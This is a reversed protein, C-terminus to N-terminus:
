QKKERIAPRSAPQSERQLSRAVRRVSDTSLIQAGRLFLGRYVEDGRRRALSDLHNMTGLIAPIGAAHLKRYVEPEPERTGVFVVLRSAPIGLSLLRRLSVDSGASASIIVGPDRAHVLRAQDHTYTIVVAYGRAKHREVADLVPTYLHPEKVDLTLVCRQRAWELTEGLTPIRCSTVRGSPDRLRLRRLDVLSKSMVPGYGTTTRDLTADHMLVLDGDRSIRVDCEVICPAISLAHAFTELANEPLGPGPGGRHASILRANGARGWLYGHLSDAHRFGRYEPVPQSWPSACSALALVLAWIAVFCIRRM